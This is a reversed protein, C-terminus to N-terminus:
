DNSGGSHVEDAASSPVEMKLKRVVAGYKTVKFTATGSRFYYDCIKQRLSIGVTAGSVPKFRFNTTYSYKTAGLCDTLWQTLMKSSKWTSWAKNNKKVDQVNYGVTRTYTVRGNLLDVSEPNLNEYRTTAKVLKAKLNINYGSFHNVDFIIQEGDKSVVFPIDETKGKGDDFVVSLDLGDSEPADFVINIPNSFEAGAPECEVAFPAFVVEPQKAEPYDAVNDSANESGVETVEVGSNKIAQEIVGTDPATTVISISYDGSVSANLNFGDGFLISADIGTDEANPGENTLVVIKGDSIAAKVEAQSLTNTSMAELNVKLSLVNDGTFEFSVYKDERGEASVKLVGSSPVDTFTVETGTKTTENLVFTAPVNSSLTLERSVETDVNDIVVTTTESPNDSLRCSTFSTAVSIGCAVLAACKFFKKM